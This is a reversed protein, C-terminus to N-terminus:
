LLAARRVQLRAREEASLVPGLPKAAAAGPDDVLENLMAEGLEAAPVGIALLAARVDAAREAEEEQLLRARGLQM